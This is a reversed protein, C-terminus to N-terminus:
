TVALFFLIDCVAFLGNCPYHEARCGTPKQYSQCLSGQYVIFSKPYYGEQYDIKLRYTDSLATPTFEKSWVFGHHRLNGDGGWKAKLMAFQQASTIKNKKIKKAMSHTQQM